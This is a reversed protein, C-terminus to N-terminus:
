RGASFSENAFSPTVVDRDINDYVLSLGHELHNASDWLLSMVMTTTSIWTTTIVVTWPILRDSRAGVVHWLRCYELGLYCMVRDFERAM